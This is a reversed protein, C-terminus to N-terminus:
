RGTSASRPHREHPAAHNAQGSPDSHMAHPTPSSRPWAAFRVLAPLAVTEAAGEAEFYAAIRRRLELEQDVPQKHLAAAVAASFICDLKGVQCQEATRLRVALAAALASVDSPM